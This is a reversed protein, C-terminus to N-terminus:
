KRGIDLVFWFNSSLISWNLTINVIRFQKSFLLVAQWYFSGVSTSKQEFKTRLIWTKFVGMIEERELVPITM